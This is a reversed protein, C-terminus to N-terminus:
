EKKDTSNLQHAFLIRVMDEIRNTSDAVPAISDRISKEIQDRPVYTELMTTKLASLKEELKERADKEASIKTGLEKEHATIKRWILFVGSKIVVLIVVLWDWTLTIATHNETVEKTIIPDM